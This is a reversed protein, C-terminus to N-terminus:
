RWSVALWSPGEALKRAPAEKGLSPVACVFMCHLGPSKLDVTGGAHAPIHIHTQPHSKFLGRQLSQLSPAISLCAQQRSGLEASLRPGLKISPDLASSVPSRLSEPPPSALSRCQLQPLRLAQVPPPFLRFMKGPTSAGRTRHPNPSCPVLLGCAPCPIM